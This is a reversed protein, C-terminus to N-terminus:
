FLHFNNANGDMSNSSLYNDFSFSKSANPTGNSYPSLTSAVSGSGNSYRGSPSLMEGYSFSRENFNVYEQSSSGLRHMPQQNSYNTSQEPRHNYYSYNDASIPRTIRVPKHDSVTASSSGYMQQYSGSYSPPISKMERMPRPPLSSFTNEPHSGYSVPAEMTLFDYSAAKNVLPAEPRTMVGNGYRRAIIEELSWTLRCDYLVQNIHVQRIIKAAKIASQIGADTLSYHVFGYGTQEGSGQNTATKKITVDKVEGFNLFVDRVTAETVVHVHQKSIFSFHLQASSVSDATIPAKVKSKPM